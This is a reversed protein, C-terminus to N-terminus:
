CRPGYREEKVQQIVEAGHCVATVRYGEQTLLDTLTDGIDRDDDIILIMPPTPLLADGGQRSEMLPKCREQIALEAQNSCIRPM